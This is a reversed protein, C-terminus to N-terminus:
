IGFELRFLYYWQSPTRTIPRREPTFDSRISRMHDSAAQVYVSVGEMLKKKGYVTWKWDYKKATKKDYAAADGGPIVWIPLEYEYAQDIDNPFEWKRYEVETALVDLLKFTPWNFGAMVPMRALKDSYYYPYDKVGLLAVEAYLKMDNKGLWDAGILSGFNVSAHADLKIGQFTFYHIGVTDNPALSDNLYKNEASHPTDKIPQVPLAHAFVSGAGIEFVDNPKYDLVVSPSLDYIPEVDRELFLNADMSFKGGAFKKNIRLGSALYQASNIISWGGTVLYGPYTGSRMLYEGLNKADPNYKYPFLGFQFTWPNAMDGANYIGQAQGVGPGFQTTRTAAQTRNEPLFYFFLGGIGVKITLRDNVTTSQNLFVAIRNIMQGELQAPPDDGEFGNAGKVVQGVDINTGIQLPSREIKVDAHAAFVLACGFGLARVLTNEARITRITNKM